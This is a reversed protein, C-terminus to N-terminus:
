KGPEQSKYNADYYEDAEESNTELGMLLWFLKGRAAREDPFGLYTHREIIRGPSEDNLRVATSIFISWTPIGTIWDEKQEVGTLHSYTPGKM